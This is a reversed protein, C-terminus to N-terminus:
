DDEFRPDPDDSYSLPHYFVSKRHDQEDGEGWHYLDDANTSARAGVIVVLLLLTMWFVAMFAVYLLVGLLALKVVTVAWEPLGFTRMAGTARRDFRRWARGLWLGFREFKGAPHPSNMTKM